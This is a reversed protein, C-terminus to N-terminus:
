RLISRVLKEQGKLYSRVKENRAEHELEIVRDKWAEANARLNTTKATLYKDYDEPTSMLKLINKRPLTFAELEDNTFMENTPYVKIRVMLSGVQAPYFHFKKFSPHEEIDEAEPEARVAKDVYMLYANAPVALNMLQIPLLRDVKLPSNIGMAASTNMALHTCNNSLMSWEYTKNGKYYKDNVSNLYNAAKSLAPRTVPIRVCRLDRAWAVAIDTGISFLAAAKEHAVSGFKNKSVAEPKMKVNEFIRLRVSEDLVHNIEKQGIAKRASNGFMMLSRGPVAVWAVNAYDSDLSIGVGEHSSNADCPKVQPYNKTEDKCLGHIYMFGHGGRGGTAGNFYNKQYKLQTGTCYEYYQPFHKDYSAQAFGAALILTMAFLRKM